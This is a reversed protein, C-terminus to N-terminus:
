PVRTTAPIVFTEMCYGPTYKSLDEYARRALGALRNADALAEDLQAAVKDASAQDVWPIQLYHQNPLAPWVDIPEIVLSASSTIAQWLRFTPFALKPTHQITLIAKSRNLASQRDRGYKNTLNSVKHHLRSQILATATRRRYTPCGYHVLDHIKPISWDPRGMVDPDYGTPALVIKEHPIYWKMQEVALPTHAFVFDVFDIRKLFEDFQRYQNREFAKLDELSALSESYHLGVLCKRDVAVGVNHGWFIVCLAPDACAADKRKPWEGLLLVEMWALKEAAKKYSQYVDAYSSYDPFIHLYRLGSKPHRM